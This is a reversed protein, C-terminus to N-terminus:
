STLPAFVLPYSSTDIGELHRLAKEFPTLLDAVKTFLATVKSKTLQNIHEMGTIPPNTRKHLRYKAEAPVFVTDLCDIFKTLTRHIYSWRTSM